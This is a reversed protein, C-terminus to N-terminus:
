RSFTDNGNLSIIKSLKEKYIKSIKRAMPISLKHHRKLHPTLQAYPVSEFSCPIRRSQAPCQGILDIRSNSFPCQIIDNRAPDIVDENENFLKTTKPNQGQKVAQYLRHALPRKIKHQHVFHSVLNRKFAM